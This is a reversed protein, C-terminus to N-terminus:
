IADRAEDKIEAAPDAGEFMMMTDRVRVDRDGWQWM